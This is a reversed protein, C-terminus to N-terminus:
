GGVRHGDNSRFHNGKLWHDRAEEIAKELEREIERTKSSLIYHL